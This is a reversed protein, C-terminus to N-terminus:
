VSQYLEDIPAETQARLRVSLTPHVQSRRNPAALDSGKPLGWYIGKPGDNNWKLVRLGGVGLLRDIFARYRWRRCYVVSPTKNEHPPEPPLAVHSYDESYCELIKSLKYHTKEPDFQTGLKEMFWEWTRDWGRQLLQCAVRLLAEYQNEVADLGDRENQRQLRAAESPDVSGGSTGTGNMGPAGTEYGTYELQQLAARRCDREVFGATLVADVATIRFIVSRRSKGGLIVVYHARDYDWKKIDHDSLKVPGSIPGIDDKM